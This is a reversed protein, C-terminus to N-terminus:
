PLIIRKGSDRIAQYPSCTDCIKSGCTVTKCKMCYGRLVKHGKIKKFHCGCHCCQKTDYEDPIGFENTIIVYGDARKM